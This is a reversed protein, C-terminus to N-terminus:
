HYVICIRLTCVKKKVFLVLAGLQSNSPRFFDKDLVDKLQPKLEKLEATAM